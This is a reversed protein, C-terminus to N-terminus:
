KDWRKLVISRAYRDIAAETQLTMMHDKEEKNLPIMFETEMMKIKAARYEKLDMPIRSIDGVPTM